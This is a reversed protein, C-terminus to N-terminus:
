CLKFIIKKLTKSSALSIPYANKSCLAYAYDDSLNVKSNRSTACYIIKIAIMHLTTISILTIVSFYDFVLSVIIHNMTDFKEHTKDM